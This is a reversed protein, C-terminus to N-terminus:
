QSRPPKYQSFDFPGLMTYIDAVTQNGMEKTAYEFNELSFSNDISDINEKLKETLTNRISTKVKEIDDVNKLTYEPMYISFSTLQKKM